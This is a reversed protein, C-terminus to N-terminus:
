YRNQIRQMYSDHSNDIKIEPLATVFLKFGFGRNSGSPVWYLSGTWCGISRIINVSKSSTRRTLLDYAQSYTVSTLPTLYFRFTLNLFNRTKKIIHQNHTESYSYTGSLSWGSGEKEPQRQNCRCPHTNESAGDDPSKLSGRPDDLIFRSGALNFGANFSFSKLYPSFFSLSDTNPKYFSHVMTGSFRLNQLLSTQYSTTMDSYPRTENEFNHSFGTNLSLLQIKRESDEEGIKAEFVQRLSFSLISGRASSEGGAYSRVVPYYDIKPSWSYGMSPTVVHSLGKLGLLGSRVIGYLTTNSSVGGNYSFTRYIQSADIGLKRSRDTEWIKLWSERYSFRPVINIYGLLKMSPLNIGPNHSIKSYQKYSRDELTDSVFLAPASPFQGSTSGGQSPLDPLYVVSGNARESHNQFRPSYRVNFGHYWRQVLQGDANKSGTGFPHLPPLSLSMTPLDDTRRDLDLNDTHTFRGTLSTSRSFKKSFSLQSKVNRNLREELNQSYDTYYSEDSQFSASGKLEFTPTVTHNYATRLAWRRSKSETATSRSYGTSRTLNGAIYGDFVYLKKFNVRSNFTFSRHKEHYDFTGLLDWYDSAAWYYGVDRVFRDGREFNGITFKTFGSHRGKKLPFVYYPIILLPLRGLYFVVPKAILKEGEVLKMNKSYFHYGPECVDCTTFRGDRIYFVAKQERYAKSGYYDGLELHSKSQVVRGKETEIGYELYDGCLIEAGDNLTVPIANPQLRYSYSMSDITTDCDCQLEASYARVMRTRTDFEIRYADLKMEESEVHAAKTLLMTSDSLRYQIRQARYDITDVDIWILSDAQIYPGAKALSDVVVLSDTESLSDVDVLSDVEVFSDTKVRGSIFSGIAEPVVDVGQLTEGGIRFKITDGSITNQYRDAAGKSSPYYWAYAQDYCVINDLEGASFNMKIRRGSLISKDFFLGLSDVPEQFDARASDIVDILDLEDGNYYVSILKGSVTSHGRNLVPDEFLDLVNEETLAVACGSSSNVEASTIKVDGWAETRGTEKDYEIFDALIEVLRSSDPYNLYLLPREEMYFHERKDDFYAHRGTALVSDAYSWLEVNEGRAISVATRLDYNVSDALLRYRLDDILVNGILNADRGIVVIATDCYIYGTATKFSVDGTWNFQHKGDPALRVRTSDSSLLEISRGSVSSGFGLVLLVLGAIFQYLRGCKM